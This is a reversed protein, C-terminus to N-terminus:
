GLNASSLLAVVVRGIFGNRCPFTLVILDIAWGIERCTHGTWSPWSLIPHRIQLVEEKEDEQQIYIM